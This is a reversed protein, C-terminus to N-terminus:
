EATKRLMNVTMKRLGQLNPHSFTKQAPWIGKLFESSWMNRSNINQKTEQYICKM